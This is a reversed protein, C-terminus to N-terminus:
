SYSLTNKYTSSNPAYGGTCQSTGSVYIQLTGKWFRLHTNANNNCSVSQSEFGVTVKFNVDETLSFIFSGSDATWGSDTSCPISYYGGIYKGQATKIVTLVNPKYDSATHWASPNCQNGNSAYLRQLSVKRGGFFKSLQNLSTSNLLLSTDVSANTLSTPCAHGYMTGHLLQAMEVRGLKGDGDVDYCANLEDVYPLLQEPTFQPTAPVM